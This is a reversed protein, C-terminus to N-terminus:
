EAPKLDRVWARWSTELDALSRGTSRELAARGTPDEAFAGKFSKYFTVLEGREQLYLCLYRATAYNVGRDDGYFRDSSQRLLDELSVARSTGFAAKLGSLRWNVLGTMAGDREISQEYLSAFGENFWSPAGPLDEGLLPHVLEHALTGTGTSINMVMKRERAMYFGYPTAPPREYAARCYADYSEKDKFLYVRLPRQPRQTFFHRYLHRTMRSVTALYSALSAPTDNTAIWFADELREILFDEGLERRIERRIALEEAESRPLAEMCQPLSPACAPLLLLALAALIRM